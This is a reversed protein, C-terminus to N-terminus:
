IGGRQHGYDIEPMRALDYGGGILLSPRRFLQATTLPVFTHWSSFWGVILDHERVMRVVHSVEPRGRILALETVDFASSFIQRDINVFRSDGNHVFLVRSM